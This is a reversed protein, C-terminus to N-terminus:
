TNMQNSRVIRKNARKIEEVVVVEVVVVVVVPVVCREYTVLMIRSSFWRVFIAIKENGFLIALDFPQTPFWFRAPALALALYYWCLLM